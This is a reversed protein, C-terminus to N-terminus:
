SIKIDRITCVKVIQEMRTEWQTIHYRVEDELKFLVKDRLTTLQDTTLESYKKPKLGIMARLETFSLGSPKITLTVSPDLGLREKIVEPKKRLNGEADRENFEKLESPKLYVGMNLIFNFTIHKTDMIGLTDLCANMVSDVSIREFERPLGNTCAAISINKWENYPFQDKNLDLFSRLDQRYLYRPYARGDACIAGTELKRLFIETNCKDRQEQIIKLLTYRGPNINDKSYLMSYCHTYFQILQEPTAEMLKIEEQSGDSKKALKWVFTDVDNNKANIAEVVKDRMVTM